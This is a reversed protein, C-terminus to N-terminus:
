AEMPRAEGRCRLDLNRALRSRKSESVDEARLRGTGTVGCCKALNVGPGGARAWGCPGEM